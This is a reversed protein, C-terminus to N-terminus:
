ILFHIQLDDHGHYRTMLHHFPQALEFRYYSHFNLNKSNQKTGLLSLQQYQLCQEFFCQVFYQLTLTLWYCLTFILILKQLGGLLRHEACYLQAPGERCFQRSSTSLYEACTFSPNSGMSCSPFVSVCCLRFCTTRKIKSRQEM